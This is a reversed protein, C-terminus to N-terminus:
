LKEIEDCIEKYKDKTIETASAFGYSKLMEKIAGTDKGSGLAYLRKVQAESIKGTTTKPKDERQNLMANAVEEKSAISKKIEFGLIALARGVASTECNSSVTIKNNFRTVLTGLPMELCYATSGEVNNKETKIRRANEKLRVRYIPKANNYRNKGINSDITPSCVDYGSMCAMLNLNEFYTKDTQRLYIGERTAKCGDTFAIEEIFAKRQELSMAMVLDFTLTKNPLFRIIDMAQKINVRLIGNDENFSTTYQINENNLLEILRDYKRQKKFGFKIHNYNFDIYGDAIVWQLIRIFNLSKDIGKVNHNFKNNFNNTVSRGWKVVDVDKAYKKEGDIVVFHEPTVVQCTINDELKIFEKNKQVIKNLPIAFSLENTSLDVQAVKTDKFKGMLIYEKINLWGKETLIETKEHYCNELASTKNIFSSDEKEYAYGTSAIVDSSDRYATAKMVVVGKEWSVIDTTIRGEPYKEYFKMIRENVEVYDKLANERGAM